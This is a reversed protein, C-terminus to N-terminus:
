ATATIRGIVAAAEAAASEIDGAFGQRAAGIAFVGLARTELDQGTVIGGPCVECGLAAALGIDPAFGINIFVGRCPFTVRTGDAGRASVGTVGDDGEIAEVSTHDHLKIIPKAAARDLYDRRARFKGRALVHVIGCHEALALAEFLASDGGGVVVVPSGRHLPGDCEACHSVGRGELEHEGRVGLARRKGGTAIIIRRAELTEDAVVAYGGATAAIREVPANRIDAGADQAEIMLNAALEVGTQEPEGPMDLAGVSAIQGGFMIDREFLVPALGARTAKVAANLGATGAGIIVLDRLL